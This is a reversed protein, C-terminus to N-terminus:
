KRRLNETVIELLSAFQDWLNNEEVGLILHSIGKLILEVQESHEKNTELEIRCNETVILYKM